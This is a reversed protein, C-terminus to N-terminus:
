RKGGYREGLDGWGMRRSGAEVIGRGGGSHRARRDKGGGHGVRMGTYGYVRM